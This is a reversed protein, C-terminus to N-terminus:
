RGAQDKLSPDAGSAEPPRSESLFTESLEGVCVEEVPGRLRVAWDAGVEVEMAGGEMEVRVPGPPLMGERVAAVAAACASTGSSETRGVGREWIAVSVAGEQPGGAAEESAEAPARIGDGAARGREPVWAFQVNTGEPFAEHASVLPGLRGVEDGGWPADGFIVAHPNGVAVPVAELELRAEQERRPERGPERRSPGSGPLARRGLGLVVRGGKRVRGPAVFPPGEPFDARGMEVRVDWTGDAGPGDVELVVRDGGSASGGVVVPFSGRPSRGERRLYVGAIRLGNGSREFEGGDPNFMRLGAVAGPAAAEVVVVGDAGVGRRRSCIRRVLAPSLAPGPGEDFVLYDNGQGHAKFFRSAVGPRPRLKRSM